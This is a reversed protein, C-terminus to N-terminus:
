IVLRELKRVDFNYNDILQTLTEVVNFKKIKRTEPKQQEQGKDDSDIQEVDGLDLDVIIESREGNVVVVGMTRM